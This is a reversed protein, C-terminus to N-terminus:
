TVPSIKKVIILKPSHRRKKRSRRKAPNKPGIMEPGVDVIALSSSKSVYNKSIALPSGSARNGLQM